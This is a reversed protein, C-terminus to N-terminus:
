LLHRSARSPKICMLSYPPLVTNRELTEAAAFCINSRMALNKVLQSQSQSELKRERMQCAHKATLGVM